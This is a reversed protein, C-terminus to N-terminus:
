GQQLNGTTNVNTMDLSINQQQSGTPNNCKTEWVSNNTVSLNTNHICENTVFIILITETQNM